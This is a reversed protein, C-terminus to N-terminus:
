LINTLLAKYLSLYAFDDKLRPNLIQSYEDFISKAAGGTSAVPLFIANPHWERFMEFETKVGQLGGIFIGANFNNYRIMKERMKELSKEKTDERETIIINEFAQNEKPFDNQFFASQYLTVHDHVKFDMRELVFRIIPTISPHGGWILHTKPLVVSALAKIAERIAIVDTNGYKNFEQESVPIGASLFIM